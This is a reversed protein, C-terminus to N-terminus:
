LKEEQETRVTNKRKGELQKKNRIAEKGKIHETEGFPFLVKKKALVKKRREEKKRVVRIVIM